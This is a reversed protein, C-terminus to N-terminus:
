IPYLVHVNYFINELNAIEFLQFPIGGIYPFRGHPLEDWGTSAM